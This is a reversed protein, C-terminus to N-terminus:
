QRLKRKLISDCIDAPSLLWCNNNKTAKLALWCYIFLIDYEKLIKKCDRSRLRRSDSYTNFEKM